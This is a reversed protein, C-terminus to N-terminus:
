PSEELAYFREANCRFISEIEYPGLRANLITRLANVVEGYEAALRCVPWDSGFMLRDVGFIDIVHHVYPALSDPCWRAHDAETVMGSLKCHVNPFDAVRSILSAWPEIEGSAIPPKSLHDVVAHLGPTEELARVVHPLHRPYTLFEFPFRLEALHSLNKLVVPRLIWADDSIDQLMPRVAIFKPHLRYRALRQPFGPDALDLWGTVGAIFDSGSALDLLFDTEAETQAAQVLVTRGVSSKRLLPQLDEILYDRALVTMQPTMWHYDGRSVKWLHHHSDIIMLAEWSSSVLPNM